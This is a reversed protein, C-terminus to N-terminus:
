LLLFLNYQISRKLIIFHDSCVSDSVLTSVIIHQYIVTYVGHVDRSKYWSGLADFASPKPKNLKGVTCHYVRHLMVGVRLLSLLSIVFLINETALILLFQVAAYTRKDSKSCTLLYIQSDAEYMGFKRFFENKQKCIPIAQM